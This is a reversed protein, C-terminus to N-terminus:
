RRRHSQGKQVPSPDIKNERKARRSLLRVFRHKGPLKLEIYGAQEIESKRLFTKGSHFARRAIVGGDANRYARTEECQGHSIWSAARYVGGLHGVNPDAYSILADPHEIEILSKAAKSITQTLLNKDHGDPAWLRTLEWVSGSWGLIFKAINYNAPLSWIVIAEKFAMYHSKGSPVSRTYHMQKITEAAATRADGVLITADEPNIFLDLPIFNM